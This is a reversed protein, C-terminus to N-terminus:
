EASGDAPEAGDIVRVLVLRSVRTGRASFWRGEAAYRTAVFSGLSHGVLVFPERLRLARITAALAALARRRRFWETM